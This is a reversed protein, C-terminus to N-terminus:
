NRDRSLEREIQETLYEIGERQQADNCLTNTYITYTGDANKAAAAYVTNCPFELAQIKYKM